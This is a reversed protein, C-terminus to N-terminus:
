SSSTSSSSSSVFYFNDDNSSIDNQLKYYVFVACRCSSIVIDFITNATIRALTVIDCEFLDIITCFILFTLLTSRCSYCLSFLAVFIIIFHCARLILNLRVQVLWYCLLIIQRRFKTFQNISKYRCLAPLKRQTAKTIQLLTFSCM